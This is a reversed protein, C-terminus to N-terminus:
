KAQPALPRLLRRPRPNATTEGADLEGAFIHSRRAQAKKWAAPNALLKVLLQVAYCGLERMPAHFTTLRPNYYPYSGDAGTVSLDEPVRVGRTRAAEIVGLAMLDDVAAIATPPAAGTLLRAALDRGSEFSFSGEVVSLQAGAQRCVEEFGERRAKAVGTTEPGALFSIRRHGLDLLHRALMQAGAHNDVIVHPIVENVGHSNVLVIPHKERVLDDIFAHRDLRAGWILMGDVSRSRFLKLHAGAAILKEDSSFLVLHLGLKTAVDLMGDITHALNPDSYSDTNPLVQGAPPICVALSGSQGSFLRLAHINPQYRLERCSQLVKRRTSEKIPVPLGRHSNIVRSVTSPSVGAVRAIERISVGGNSRGSVTGPQKM